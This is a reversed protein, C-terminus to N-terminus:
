RTSRIAKIILRAIVTAISENGMAAELAIQTVVDDPLELTVRREQNGRRLVLALTPRDTLPLANSPGGNGEPKPEDAAAPTLRLVTVARGTKPRRLSIGLRSCTVQLSGVTVGITAAIDERTMGREVLNKIQELREPTFKVTRGRIADVLEARDPQSLM